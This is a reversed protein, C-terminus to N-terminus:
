DENMGGRLWNRILLGPGTVEGPEKEYYRRIDERIEDPSLQFGAAELKDQLMQVVLEPYWGWMKQFEAPTPM